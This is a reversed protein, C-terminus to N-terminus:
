EDELEWREKNLNIWNIIPEPYDRWEKNNFYSITKNLGDPDIYEMIAYRIDEGVYSCYENPEIVYWDNGVKFKIYEKNIEDIKIM